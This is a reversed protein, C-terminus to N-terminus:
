ENDANQSKNKQMKKLNEHTLMYDKFNKGKSRHYIFLPMLIFTIALVSVGIIQDGRLEEGTNKVYFGYPIAIIIGIFIILIVKKM